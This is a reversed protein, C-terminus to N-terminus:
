NSVHSKIEPMIGRTADATVGLRNRIEKLVTEPEIFSICDKECYDRRYCRQCPQASRLVTSHKGVPGIRKEDTPGFLAILPTHFASALHMAFSDGTVLLHAYKMLEAFELLTLEGALNVMSPYRIESILQDIDKKKDRVGTFVMLVDIPFNDLLDKFKDAGWNKTKWRTFPSVVMIRKKEPNIRKLLSQIVKGEEYSTFIEMDSNTVPIGALRLVHDMEEIAHIEPKRFFKLFPWRGKVFKRKAKAAYLFIVSKFRGQLDFALDYELRRVERFLTLLHSLTWGPHKLWDRKVRDKKFLWVKDVHKNFKFIDYSSDATLVTISSNPFTEKLTRIHGTSHLVDGLSTLKIVLIHL